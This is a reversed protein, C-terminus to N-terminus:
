IWPRRCIKKGASLPDLCPRSVPNLKVLSSNSSTVAHSNAWQCMGGIWVSCYWIFLCQPIFPMIFTIHATESLSFSFVFLIVGHEHITWTASKHIELALVHKRTWHISLSCASSAQERTRVHSVGWYHHHQKEPTWNKHWHVNVRHVKYIDSPPQCRLWCLAEKPIGTQGIITGDVTLTGKKKAHWVRGPELVTCIVNSPFQVWYQMSNHFVDCM